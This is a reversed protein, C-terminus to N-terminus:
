PRSAEIVPVTNNGVNESMNIIVNGLQDTKVVDLIYINYFDISLLIILIFTFLFIFLKNKYFVKRSEKNAFYKIKKGFIGKRLVVGVIIGLLYCFFIIATKSIASNLIFM